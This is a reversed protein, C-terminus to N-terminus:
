RVYLKLWNKLLEIGHDTLIAEPHFQVGCVPLHQHRAAMLVQSEDWAAGVLEASLSKHDLVLSHYRCVQLPNPLGHFMGQQDHDIQSTRGHLPEPARIVQAGFAQGIVQLGLCVGFIPLKGSLEQAVELSCGADEPKGPGPGIVVAEPKLACIDGLDLADNRVVHTEAGAINLCRALNHVFSDYNDIVLIM